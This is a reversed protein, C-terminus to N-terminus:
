KARQEYRTRLRVLLATAAVALMVGAADAAWDAASSDRWSIRSQLWEDFGGYALSLLLALTTPLLRLPRLGGHTARICLLGFLGYAGAHLVKDSIRSPAVVLEQLSYLYVALMFALVPGWLSAIRAPRM